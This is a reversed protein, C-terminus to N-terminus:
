PKYPLCFPHGTFCNQIEKAWLEVMLSPTKPWPWPSTREYIVDRMQEIAEEMEACRADLADVSWLAYIDRATTV